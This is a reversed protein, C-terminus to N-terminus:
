KVEGSEINTAYPTIIHSEAPTNAKAATTSNTATGATFATVAAVISKLDPKGGAATFAAAAATTGMALHVPDTVKLKIAM